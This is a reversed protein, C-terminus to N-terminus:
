VYQVNKPPFNLDNTTTKLDTKYQSNLTAFKQEEIQPPFQDSIRIRVYKKFLTCNKSM